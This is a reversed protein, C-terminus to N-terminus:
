REAHEDSGYQERYNYHTDRYSYNSLFSGKTFDVDNVVAGLINAGAEALRKIAHHIARKRSKNPRCVLVMCGALGALSVADSVVGYPPSDVIVRDYRKEAWDMFDKLIRSGMIEAASIDQTPRSSVVHLNECETAQPLSDFLAPDHSALSHILSGAQPNLKFMRGVRPRRLDFDVLLTKLGRKATMIALNCSTITKGEAATTSVVLVSRGLKPGALSDILSRIGAFAEAVQSFRDNLSALALEERAAVEMHPILGLVKLGLESELDRTNTVFDELNDTFLALGLGGLAGLIFAVMLIRMKRPKIPHVPPTAKKATKISATNEDASLRAEEIRNLVGRYSLDSADRERELSTLTAHAKVIDLELDNLEKRRALSEDKLSQMQNDVLTLESQVTSRSRQISNDLQHRVISITEEQALVDPHKPTLRTLLSDRQAVADMWARLAATIEEQRPVSLPIRGAGAPDRSIESLTGLLEKTLLQQNELKILTSNFEELSAKLTKQRFELADLQNKARFDVLAQEATELAKRQAIVQTQLWAVASDSTLRNEEFAIAETAAAFANALNAAMVPDRSDVTIRLLRTRPVLRFDVATPPPLLADMQEHTADPRGVIGRLKDAAVRRTEDGKFKELRTNFVEEAGWSSSVDDIIAGQGSTIRPRRTSMEILADARYVRHAFLLYVATALLAFAIVLGVTVWKRAAVRVLRDLTVKGLLGTDASLGPQDGYYPDTYTVRSSYLPRVPASRNEPSSEAPSSENPPQNSM